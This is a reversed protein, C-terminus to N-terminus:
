SADIVSSAAASAEMEEQDRNGLQEECKVLGEGAILTVPVCAMPYFLGHELSRSRPWCIIPM